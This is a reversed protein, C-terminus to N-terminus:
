PHPHTEAPKCGGPAAGCGQPEGVPEDGHFKREAGSGSHAQDSGLDDTCQHSHSETACTPSGSAADSTKQEVQQSQKEAGTRAKRAANGTEQGVPPRDEASGASPKESTQDPAPEAVRSPHSQPDGASRTSGVEDGNGCATLTLSLLVVSFTAFSKASM